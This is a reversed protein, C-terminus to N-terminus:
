RRKGSEFSWPAPGRRTRRHTRLNIAPVWHPDTALSPTPPMSLSLSFFPSLSALPFSPPLSLRLPSRIRSVTGAVQAVAARGDGDPAALPIHKRHCRPFSAPFHLASLSLLSLLALPSNKCVLKGCMMVGAM